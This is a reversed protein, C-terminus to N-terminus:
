LTSIAALKKQQKLQPLPVTDKGMMHTGDALLSFNQRWTLIQAIDTKFYINLIRSPINFLVLVPCLDTILGSSYFPLSSIVESFLCFFLRLWFIGLAWFLTLASILTSKCTQLQKLNHRHDWALHQRFIFKRRRQDVVFLLSPMIHQLLLNYQVTNLDKSGHSCLTSANLLKYLMYLCCKIKETIYFGM